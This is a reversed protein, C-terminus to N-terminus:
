GSAQDRSKGQEVQLAVPVALYWERRSEDWSALGLEIADDTADQISDRWPTRPRGFTSIRFRDAM